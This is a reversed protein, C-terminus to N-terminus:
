TVFGFKSKIIALIEFKLEDKKHFFPTENDRDEAQLQGRM